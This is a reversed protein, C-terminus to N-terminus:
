SCISVCDHVTDCHSPSEIESIFLTLPKRSLCAVSQALVVIICTLLFPVNDVRIFHWVPAEDGPDGEEAYTYINASKSSM